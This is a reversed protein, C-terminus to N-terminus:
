GTGQIFESCDFERNAFDSYLGITRLDAGLEDHLDAAIRERIRSAQRIRFYRDVLIIIIIGMGLIVALAITRALIKKQNEYRLNLEAAILPRESELKSRISLENLWEKLPLIKGYFNNGDTLASLSRISQSKPIAKVPAGLAVNKGKSFLEIEAFGIHFPGYSSPREPSTEEITLYRCQTEQIRWMMIPGSDVVGERNYVLIDRSDSFDAKTAGKIKLNKPFGLDGRYSQPVTDGQEMAHLHIRSISHVKGLDILLAPREGFDSAYAASQEGYASDMLYPTHGDVLFRKDWSKATSVLNTSAEVPRRLAVNEPGSFIMIESLLLAPTGSWARIDLEIAEFRIWSADVESIPIALPAIGIATSDGSNYEAITDGNENDNKGAVIRFRKPFADAQFGESADRRIAPVVIIQDIPYERDLHIEVWADELNSLSHFGISGVGGRLSYKSLEELRSDINALRDELESLPMSGFDSSPENAYLGTLSTALLWLGTLTHIFPSELM